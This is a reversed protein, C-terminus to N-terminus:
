TASASPRDARLGAVKGRGGRRATVELEYLHQKGYGNPWWLQPHALEMSFVVQGAAPPLTSRRRPSWPTARGRDPVARPLEVRGTRPKTPGSREPSNRADGPRLAPCAAASRDADDLCVGESAVLRVDKWIGMHRDEHGLGLRRQDHVELLSLGAAHGADHGMRSGVDVAACVAAPAPHILVGPRERRRFAPDRRRRVRFAHVPGRAPRLHRGNLRVDALYDVGNSNSGCPRAGGCRRRASRRATGGSRAPWGASRSATSDTASRRCRGPGSWTGICTAPCSPPSRKPRRSVRRCLGKPRCGAGARFLCDDLRRRQSGTGAHMTASSLGSGRRRQTAFAPAVWQRRSSYAVSHGDNLRRPQHATPEAILLVMQVCGM